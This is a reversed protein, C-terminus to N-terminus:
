ASSPMRATSLDRPSPSTYLLCAVYFDYWYPHGPIYCEPFGIVQAGADGAEEILHCTKAVTAERDLLVPAAQVAAVKLQPYQDGM